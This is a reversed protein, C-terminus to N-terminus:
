GRKLYVKVFASKLEAAKTSLLDVKGEKALSLTEDLKQRIAQIETDNALEEVAKLKSDVEEYVAIVQAGDKADAATIIKEMADHFDVLTIALMSFGNRKLLDQFIPRIQEFDTHASKLDGTNVKDKLSLIIDSVKSLDSNFHVDRSIVYPHYKTYKNLFVGYESVLKNYNDLAEPRKDQGTYFLTQKYYQNMNNYDELFFKKTFFNSAYSGGVLILLLIVIFLSFVIKSTKKEPNKNTNIKLIKYLACFGTVATFFAVVAFVYFIIKAIGVLWFFALLFFVVSLIVRIMRDIVSENKIIKM